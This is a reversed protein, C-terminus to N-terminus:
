WNRKGGFLKTGPPAISVKGHESCYSQRRSTVAGCYFNNIPWKCMGDELDLLAVLKREGCASVIQEPAAPVVLRPLFTTRRRRGDQMPLKKPKGRPKQEGKLHINMRWARGGVSNRSRSMTKGIETASLGESALRKLQEDDEEKWASMDAM